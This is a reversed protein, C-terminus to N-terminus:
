ASPAAPAPHCLRQQCVTYAAKPRLKDDVIGWGEPPHDRLEYFFIRAIREQTAIRDMLQAYNYAQQATTLDATNWGCETLWLPKERLGRREMIQRVSSLGILREWWAYSGTMRHMVDGASEQYCHQTVIDLFQGGRELITDLWSTWDREMALDPGCVAIHQEVRKVAHAGVELISNVYQEPSGSWFGKMNPENWLGVHRITARYRQCFAEVFAYWDGADIPPTHRGHGGNAWSPTYSLTAYIDLGRAVAEQVVRDTIGWSYHGRAPEIMDWNADIRISGFGASVALDLLEAPPLHTNVGYRPDAM